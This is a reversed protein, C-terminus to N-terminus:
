PSIRTRFVKGTVFLKKPCQHLGSGVLLKHSAKTLYQLLRTYVNVNVDINPFPM